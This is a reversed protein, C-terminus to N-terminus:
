IQATNIDINKMGRRPFILDNMTEIVMNIWRWRVDTCFYIDLGVTLWVFQQLIFVFVQRTFQRCHGRLDGVVM